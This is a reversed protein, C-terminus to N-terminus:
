AGKAELQVGSFSLEPHLEACRVEANRKSWAEVPYSGLFEVDPETQSLHAPAFEMWADVVYSRLRNTTLHKM